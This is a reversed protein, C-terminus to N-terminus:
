GSSVNYYYIFLRIKFHNLIIQTIFPSLKIIASFRLISIKLAPHGAHSSVIGQHYEITKKPEKGKSIYLHKKAEYARCDKKTQAVADIRLKEPIDPPKIIRIM